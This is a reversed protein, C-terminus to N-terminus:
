AIRSYWFESVYVAEAREAEVPREVDTGRQQAGRVGGGGDEGGGCGWCETVAGAAAGCAPASRGSRGAKTTTGREMTWASTSVSPFASTAITPPALGATEDAMTVPKRKSRKPMEASSASTRRWSALSKTTRKLCRASRSLTRSDGRPSLQERENPAGPPRRGHGAGAGEADLDEDSHPAYGQVGPIRGDRLGDKTGGTSLDLSDPRIVDSGVVVPLEEDRRPAHVRAKNRSLLDNEDWLGVEGAETVLHTPEPVKDAYANDHELVPPWRQLGGAIIRAVPIVAPVLRPIVAM